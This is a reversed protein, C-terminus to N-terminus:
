PRYRVTVAPLVGSGESDESDQIHATDQANDGDSLATFGLRFSSKTRGAFVDAQIPDRVDVLLVGLADTQSATAFNGDLATAGWDSADLTGGVDVHDVLLSGMSAYPTGSVNFQRIELTAELIQAGAPIAALDFTLFGQATANGSNDGILIGGLWGATEVFGHDDVFGDLGGIPPLQTTLASNSVIGGGAGCGATALTLLMAIMLTYSNTRM